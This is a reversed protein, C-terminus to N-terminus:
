SISTSSSPASRTASAGSEVEPGDFQLQRAFDAILRSLRAPDDLHPCHGFGEPEDITVHAPLHARFYALQEPRLLRESRGWLLTIPMALAALEVPLSHQGDVTALIDTVAPANCRTHVLPGLLLPALPPVRHFVKELFARADRRSRLAFAARVEASAEAELPAGAPSTLFLGLVREPRSHAYRLATAGGLSNGVLLAPEALLQDLVAASSALHRAVSYEGRPPDSLGHGASEVITVRRARRRLSLLVPVWTAASDSLGPLLVVPPLAGTGPADYVHHRAVETDVYRSRVGALRLGARLLRELRSM